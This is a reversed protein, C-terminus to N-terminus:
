IKPHKARIQEMKLYNGNEIDQVGQMVEARLEDASIQWPVDTEEKMDRFSSILMMVLEENTENLVDRVFRAKQAELEVISM